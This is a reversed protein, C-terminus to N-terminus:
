RVRDLGRAGKPYLQGPIVAVMGLGRDGGDWRGALCSAFQAPPDLDDTVHHPGYEAHDAGDALWGHDTPLRATRDLVHRRDDPRRGSCTNGTRQSLFRAAVADVRFGAALDGEKVRATL